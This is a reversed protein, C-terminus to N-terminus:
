KGGPKIPSIISIGQKELEDLISTIRMDVNTILYFNQIGTLTLSNILSKIEKLKQLQEQNLEYM